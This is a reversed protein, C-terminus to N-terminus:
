CDCHQYRRYQSIRSHESRACHRPSNGTDYRKEVARRLVVSCGASPCDGFLNRLSPAAEPKMQLYSMVFGNSCRAFKRREEGVLNAEFAKWGGRTPRVEIVIKASVPEIRFHM